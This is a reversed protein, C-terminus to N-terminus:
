NKIFNYFAPKGKAIRLSYKGSPLTKIDILTAASEYQTIINSEADTIAVNFPPAIGNIKLFMNRGKISPLPYQNILFVNDSYYYKDGINLNILTDSGLEVYYINWRKLKPMLEAVLSLDNGESAPDNNMLLLDGQKENELTILTELMQSMAEASIQNSYCALRNINPLSDIILSDIKNNTISIDELKKCHSLKIESLMNNSCDISILEPLNELNIEAFSNNAINLKALKNKIPFKISMLKNESCNLELMNKNATIDLNPLLNKSCDLNQLATLASLGISKLQNERCNLYSLQNKKPFSIKYIHNKNCYITTLQTCSTLDLFTILNSNCNLSTLNPNNFLVSKIQNKSCDLKNLEQLNSLDIGELLNSSCNINKIKGNIIPTLDKIQNNNFIVESLEDCGRLDLSKIQNNRCSIRQLAPLFRMDLQKLKNDDVNVTLLKPNDGFIVKELNSGQLDIHKISKSKSFDITNIRDCVFKEDGKKLIVRKIEKPLTPYFYAKISDIRGYFTIVNDNIKIALMKNPTDIVENPERIDNNNLDVWLNPSAANSPKITVFLVRNFMIQPFTLRIAETSDLKMPFASYLGDVAYRILKVENLSDLAKEFVIKPNNDESREADTKDQRAKMTKPDIMKRSAPSDKESNNESSAKRQTNQNTPRPTPKNPVTQKNSSPTQGWAVISQTFILTLIIFIRM